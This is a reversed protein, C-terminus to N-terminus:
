RRQKIWRIIALGIGIAVVMAVPAAASFVVFFSRNAGERLLGGLGASGIAVVSTILM